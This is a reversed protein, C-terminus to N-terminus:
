DKYGKGLLAANVIKSAKLLGDMGKTLAHYHEREVNELEDYAKLVFPYARVIESAGQVVCAHIGSLATPDRVLNNRDELFTIVQTLPNLTDSPFISEDVGTELEPIAEVITKRLLARLEVCGLDKDM